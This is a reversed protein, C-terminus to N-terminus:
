IQVSDLYLEAFRRFGVVDPSHRIHTLDFNGFM